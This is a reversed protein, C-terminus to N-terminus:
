GITSSKSCLVRLNKGVEDAAGEDAMGFASGILCDALGGDARAM